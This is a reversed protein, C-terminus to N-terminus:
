VGECSFSMPNEMEMLIVFVRVSAKLIVSHVDNIEENWLM